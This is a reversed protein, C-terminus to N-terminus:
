QELSKKLFRFSKEREKNLIQYAEKYDANLNEKTIKKGNFKRNKLNFKRLLTEIRSNMNVLKKQEREFIVFPKNYLIAFVSSHFSDTCVLFAHKELYLFESPNCNYFPSKLDLLNIIECNNDKAVKLIAEKKEQSLEGLFYNLIYKKSTLCKPKKAIKDWESASLLMTPDILVDVDERNTLKQILVKGQDERVSIYKLHNLYKAYRKIKNYKINNTGFSAAYSIVKQRSYFYGFNAKDNERYNSNWIQDSGCVLVDYKLIKQTKIFNNIKFNSFHIYNKNFKKFNKTRENDKEKVFLGKVISTFTKSNNILTEVKCDFNKELYYQLAYNQLRNGYNAGGTITIIGINKM